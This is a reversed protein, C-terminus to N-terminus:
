ENRKEKAQSATSIAIICAAAEVGLIAFLRGEGLAPGISGLTLGTRPVAFEMIVIPAIYGIFVLAFMLNRMVAFGFRFIGAYLLASAVLPLPIMVLLLRGASEVQIDPGGLRTFLWWSSVAMIAVSLFNPTLKAALIEKTTLPLTALFRYGRYREEILEVNIMGFIAWTFIGTVQVVVVTMDLTTRTDLWYWDMGLVSMPLLVLYFGSNKMLLRFM